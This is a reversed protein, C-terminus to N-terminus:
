AAFLGSNGELWYLGHAQPVATDGSLTGSVTLAGAPQSSSQEGAQISDACATQSYTCPGYNTPAVCPELLFTALAVGQVPGLEAQGADNEATPTPAQFNELLISAPLPSTAPAFADVDVGADLSGADISVPRAGPASSDSTVRGACASTAMWLIGHLALRELTSM